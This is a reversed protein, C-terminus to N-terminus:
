EVQLRGATGHDGIHAVVAFPGQVIGHGVHANGVAAFERPHSREQLTTRVSNVIDEHDVLSFGAGAKIEFTM